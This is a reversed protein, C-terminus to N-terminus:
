NSTACETKCSSQLCSFLAIGVRQTEQSVGTFSSACTLLSQTQVYCELAAGAVDQCDCERACAAIEQSCNAKTCSVCIGSTSAGDAISADPIDTFFDKEPDCLGAGSDAVVTDSAADRSGVPDTLGQQPGTEAAADPAFGTSSGGCAQLGLFVPGCGVVALVLFFRASM